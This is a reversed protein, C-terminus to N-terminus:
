KLLDLLNDCVKVTQTLEQKYGKQSKRGIMYGVVGIPFLIAIVMGIKSNKVPQYFFLDRLIPLDAVKNIVLQVKSNELYSVVDELSEFIQLREASDYGKTWYKVYSQEKKHKRLFEECLLRLAVVKEAAVDNEVDDMVIEKMEVHRVQHMGTIRRFFNIYADPNFVASDNVAKYTFFVGLPLLVASSLWMGKWVEWHGDRAMKYGMNDFIYYVIFLLVSIVIPTGLGGKRIIAGLPAGIFFFVLCAFSLTFKKQLEIQHRRIVMRSEDMTYGRFQYDQKMNMARRKADSVYEKKKKLTAGAFISDLDLPVLGEVIGVREEVKEGDKVVQRRMPVGCVPNGLFQVAISSGISDVKVNVSDITHRLEALNKGVYQNRMAGDDMRTFNADFPIMIEKLGFTERRYLASGRKGITRDDKLDEFSEGSYLQLFLHKKDETFSLKGSDAVIVNAYGYGKSVDYIMMNYLMGTKANKQKVYLNYGQIQDYFAGEPIELEPSKQRMSFLLTWMKVQAKPLVDNQFFFAGVSVAMILAILPSMVKILSVGSAKMATLEFHEGLNGFVMLSALLISLPLALPVMTLAAYFFLEAIVTMDLGKGVMDDIYKWLFQMMVIFLCIFFTMCFLPLFTQLIFLYLKKVKLMKRVFEKLPVFNLFKIPM